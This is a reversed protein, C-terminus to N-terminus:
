KVFNNWQQVYEAPLSHWYYVGLRIYQRINLQAATKPDYPVFHPFVRVGSPSRQYIITRGLTGHADLSFLPGKVKAM